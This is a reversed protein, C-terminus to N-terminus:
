ALGLTSRSYNLCSVVNQEEYALKEEPSLGTVHPLEGKFANEKVLRLLKATEQASADEFTAWYSDTLYPIELPDRTIMELSFTIDPNFKKCWDVGAKVDVIGEGLPVESLLFGDKYDKVGMDKVHTSFAYPALTKIVEMPNELFSVNNGFDLTVGVWESGVNLIIAELEKANWDKHNEIALKMKHKRVIPEALAISQLANKKFAKYEEPTQFNVYRRGSLCATRLVTAGAEKAALVEAEFKVVEDASKPLGISGELYLDLKERRDRVKKAFDDAWGSVLVQVGGAGIQKCHEMLDIADAFGPFNPSGVQSHWRAGYSHVVVGMPIGKLTDPLSPFPFSMAVAGLSATKIFHRRDADFSVLNSKSTKM